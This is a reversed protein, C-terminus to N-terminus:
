IKGVTHRTSHGGLMFLRRSVSCLGLPSIDLESKYITANRRPHSMRSPNTTKRFHFCMRIIDSLVGVTDQVVFNADRIEFTAPRRTLTNDSRVLSRSVAGRLDCWIAPILFGAPPRGM